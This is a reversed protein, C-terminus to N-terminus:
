KDNMIHVKIILSFGEQRNQNNIFFGNTVIGSAKLHDILVDDDLYHDLM